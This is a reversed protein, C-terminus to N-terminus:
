IFLFSLQSYRFNGVCCIDRLLLYIFMSRICRVGGGGGWGPGVCLWGFWEGREKLSLIEVQLCMYTNKDRFNVSTSIMSLACNLKM